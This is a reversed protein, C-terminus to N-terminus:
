RNVGLARFARLKDVSVTKPNTELTMETTSAWSFHRALANLIRELLKPELLSPTGGGFFVSVVPVSSFEASREHIEALLADVYEKQLEFDEFGRPVSFFDCYGCKVECFPIHIYLSFGM